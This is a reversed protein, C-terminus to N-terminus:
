GETLGTMGEALQAIIYYVNDRNLVLPPKIKLVNNFPGDRSLLINRTKLFEVLQEAM